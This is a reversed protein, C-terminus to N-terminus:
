DQIPKCIRGGGSRSRCSFGQLCDVDSECELDERTSPISLIPMRISELSIEKQEILMPKTETIMNWHPAGQFKCDFTDKYEENFRNRFTKAVTIVIETTQGYANEFPGLGFTKWIGIDGSSPPEPRTTLTHYKSGPYKGECERIFTSMKVQGYKKKADELKSEEYNEFIPKLLGSPAPTAEAETQSVKSSNEPVQQNCAILLLLSSFTLLNKSISMRVDAQALSM